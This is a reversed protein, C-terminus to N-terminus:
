MTAAASSMWLALTGPVALGASVSNWFTPLVTARAM